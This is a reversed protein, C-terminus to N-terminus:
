ANNVVLKPPAPPAFKGSVNAAAQQREEKKGLKQKQPSAGESGQTGAEVEGKRLFKEQASANGAMASRYQAM